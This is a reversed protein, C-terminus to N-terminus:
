NVPKICFPLDFVFFSFSVSDADDYPQCVLKPEALTNLIDDFTLKDKFLAHKARYAGGMMASNAM